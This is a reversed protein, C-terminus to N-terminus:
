MHEINVIDCNVVRAAREYETCTHVENSRKQEAVEDMRRHVMM